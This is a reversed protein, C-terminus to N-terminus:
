IEKTKKKAKEKEDELVFKLDHGLLVEGFESKVRVPVNGAGAKGKYRHDFKPGHDDDEEDAKKISFGTENNVEGFHTEMDFNASLDKPVNLYVKTFDNKIKVSQTNNDVGIWVGGCHEFNGEFNGSVNGIRGRSFKITTKGDQVSRIDAKGFEVNIAKVNALAGATLAGFKSELQVQGQYDPMFMQGFSNSANLTTRSPLYVVYNITFGEDKYNGKKNWLRKDDDISTKFWVESGSKGDSIKINDLIQQARDESGSKATMQIDVKIEDKNWTQVKLEGFSNELKVRDSGSLPYSKSYNRSKEIGPKGAMSNTAIMMLALLFLSFHKLTIKM